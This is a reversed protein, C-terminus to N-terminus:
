VSDDLQISAMSWRRRAFAWWPLRAIEALQAARRRETKLREQIFDLDGRLKFSEAEASASRTRETALARKTTNLTIEAEDIRTYLRSTDRAYHESLLALQRRLDETVRRAERRARAADDLPLLVVKAEARPTEVPEEIVIHQPDPISVSM